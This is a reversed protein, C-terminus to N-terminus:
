MGVIPEGPDPQVSPLRYLGGLLDDMGRSQIVANVM